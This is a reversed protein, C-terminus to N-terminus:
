SAGVVRTFPSAGDEEAGCLMMREGHEDDPDDRYWVRDVTADAVCDFAEDRDHLGETVVWLAVAIVAHQDSLHGPFYWYCEQYEDEFPVPMKPGQEGGAHPAAAEASPRGDPTVVPCGPPCDNVDHETM